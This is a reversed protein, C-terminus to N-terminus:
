TANCDGGKLIVFKYKKRNNYKNNLTNYITKKDISLEKSAEDMSNFTGILENDKYVNMKKRTKEAGILSANIQQMRANKDNMFWHQTNEKVNCWELNSVNNNLKNLDKHNVIEKGEVPKLFNEAVIRHIRKYYRKNNYFLCVSYYGDKDIKPKLIKGSKKNIVKGDDTILYSEFRKIEKIM